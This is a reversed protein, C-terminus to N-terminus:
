FLSEQGAAELVEARSPTPAEAPPPPELARRAQLEDANAGRVMVEREDLGELPEVTYGVSPQELHSRLRVLLASWDPGYAGLVSVVVGSPHASDQLIFGAPQASTPLDRVEYASLRDVDLAALAQAVTHSRTPRVAVGQPTAGPRGPSRGATPSSGPERAM